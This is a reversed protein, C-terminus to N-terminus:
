WGADILQQALGDAQRIGAQFAQPWGGLVDPDIAAANLVDITATDPGFRVVADTGTAALEAGVLGPPFRHAFPEVVLVVDSDAALDAKTPSWVGGDIYCRDGVVVPPFAGSVLPERHCRDGAACRQRQGM